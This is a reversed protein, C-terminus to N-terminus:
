GDLRPWRHLPWDLIAVDSEGLIAARIFPRGWLDHRLGLQGSIEEPSLADIKDDHTKGTKVEDYDLWSVTRKGVQEAIATASAGVAARCIVRLGLNDQLATAGAEGLLQVLQSPAQYTVVTRIGRSRGTAVLEGVTEASGKGIRPLEDLFIWVKHDVNDELSPGLVEAGLLRVIMGAFASSQERYRLDLQVVIPATSDHGAVWDAISVRENTRAEAQALEGVLGATHALLNMVLSLAAASPEEERGELLAAVEPMKTRVITQLTPVPQALLHQLHRWGWATGLRRALYLILAALILRSGASWVPDRSEPIFASALELADCRTRVDRGIAWVAGDGPRLSLVRPGFRRLRRPLDGKVDLLFLRDGRDLAQRALGELIVSKGGGPRGLLGIGEGEVHLPMRLGPAIMIGTGDDRARWCERLHAIAAGGRRPERGSVHQAAIARPTAGYVRRYVARTAVVTVLGCAALRALIPTTADMASISLAFRRVADIPGFNFAVVDGLTRRLLDIDLIM